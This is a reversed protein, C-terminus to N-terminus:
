YSLGKEMHEQMKDRNKDDTENQLYIREGDTFGVKAGIGLQTRGASQEDRWRNEGSYKGTNLYHQGEHGFLSALWAASSDHIYRFSLTMSGRGTAGLKAKPSETLNFSSIQAIAKKEDATLKDANKNLLDAAAAIAESVKLKDDAPIGAEYTISVKKRLVIISALPQEHASQKGEPERIL